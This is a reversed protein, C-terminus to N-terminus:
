ITRTDAGLEGLAERISRLFYEGFDSAIISQKQSRAWWEVVPNEGDGSPQSCDIAYYGGDGTSGILIHSKPLQSSKREDLTLWVADPVGSNVFDDKVVGYFEAGAIDGCGLRSLFARYTPPFSLGLAQEAKGLLYESKTGDFDSEGNHEIIEFAEDLDEM